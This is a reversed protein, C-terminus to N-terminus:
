ANIGEDSRVYEVLYYALVWIHTVMAVEVVFTKDLVKIVSGSRTIVGIDLAGSQNGIGKTEKRPTQEPPSM